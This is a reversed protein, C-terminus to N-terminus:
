SIKRAYETKSIQHANEAWLEDWNASAVQLAWTGSTAQPQWLPCHLEAETSPGAYPLYMSSPHLSPHSSPFQSLWFGM